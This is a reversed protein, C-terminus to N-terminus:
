EYRPQVNEVEVLRRTNKIFRKFGPCEGEGNWFDHLIGCAMQCQEMEDCGVCSTKVKMAKRREQRYKKSKMITSINSDFINGMSDFGLEGGAEICTVTEGNWDIDISGPIIPCIIDDNARNFKISNILSEVPNVAIEDCVKRKELYWETADILFQSTEEFAPFVSTIHKMGDGSPIFFGTHIGRFGIQYLYELVNKAGLDIAQKTIAMTVNLKHGDAIMKKCNDIWQNELEPAHEHNVKIFRTNVEYSTSIHDFLKAVKVARSTLLNTVISLKVNTSIQSFKENAYPLVEKFFKEGLMSPEGGIVHVEANLYSPNSVLFDCLQDIVQYFQDKTMYKSSVKKDTSIYCHECRLNCDRTVNIQCLFTSNFM